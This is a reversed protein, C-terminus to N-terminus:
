QQGRLYRDFWVVSSIRLILKWQDNYPQLEIRYGISMERHMHQKLYALLTRCAFGLNETDITQMRSLPPFLDSWEIQPLKTTDLTLIKSFDPEVIPNQLRQPPPSRVAASYDM